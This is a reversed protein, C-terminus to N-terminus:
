ALQAHRRPSRKRLFLLTTCALPGACTPSPVSTLSFNTFGTGISLDTPSGSSATFSFISRFFYTGGSPLLVDLDADFTGTAPDGLALTAFLGNAFFFNSSPVTGVLMTYEMQRFGGGIDYTWQGEAHLLM